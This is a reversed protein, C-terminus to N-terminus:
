VTTENKVTQLHQDFYKYKPSFHATALRDDQKENKQLVIPQHQQHWQEQSHLLIVLDSLLKTM